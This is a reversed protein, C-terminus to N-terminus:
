FGFLERNELIAKQREGTDKIKMIDEKTTTGKGDNSPPNSVNAGKTEVKGIVDSWEEKIKDIIKDSDEANGEKDLKIDDLSISKSARDIWNAPIGADKLLKKRIEQKTAKTEKESVTAKYEDYEKQLKELEAKSNDSELQKTAKELAKETEKLKEADEKYSDREDKLANVVTTHEEIITEVQEETLGMGKLMKRTLSM